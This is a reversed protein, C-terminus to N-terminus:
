APRWLTAGPAAASRSPADSVADAASNVKDQATTAVSGVKDGAASVHHDATGMVREKATGFASRVRGIRRFESRGTAYLVAGAIAWGAAVILATWCGDMINEFGQWLAVSLFLLVMYAAFGAGGFMGASKAAKSAEAKALEVEQRVLTSIRMVNSLLEGVSTDAVDAPSSAQPAPGPPQTM